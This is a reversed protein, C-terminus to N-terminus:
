RGNISTNTGWTTWRKPSRGALGCISHPTLGWATLQGICVALRDSTRCPFLGHATRVDFGGSGRTELLGPPLHSRPPSCVWLGACSHLDAAELLGGTCCDGYPMPAHHRAAGLHACASTAQAPVPLPVLLLAPPPSWAAPSLKASLVGPLGARWCPRAAGQVAQRGSRWGLTGAAQPRACSATPASLPPSRRGLARDVSAQVPSRGVWALPREPMAPVPRCGRLVGLRFVHSM